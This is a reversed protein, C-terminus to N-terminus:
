TVGRYVKRDRVNRMGQHSMAYRRALTATTDSSARIARVDDPTLKSAYHDTGYRHSGRGKNEMDAANDAHTGLFMHDTNVCIRNDCRHCVLMLDPIEGNTIVWSVRHALWVRGSFGFMGYGHPAVFATWTWCPGLETRVIPGNKDVKALFREELTRYKM